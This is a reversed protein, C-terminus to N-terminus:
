SKNIIKNILEIIKLQDKNELEYYMPISLCESYFKMSNTISNTSYGLKSYFPHLVVPIYHVQTYIGKDMLSKMLEARSVNINEFNIKIVYLHHSSFDRFDNHLTTVNEVSKFNKDYFKEGLCIIEM